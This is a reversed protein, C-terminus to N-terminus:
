MLLRGLVHRVRRTLVPGDDEVDVLTITSQQSMTSDQSMSRVLQRQIIAPNTERMMRTAAIVFLLPGIGVLFTPLFYPYDILFKVHGFLAPLNEAPRAFHGGIIPALAGGVQWSMSAIPFARAANTPDTIEALMIKSQINFGPAVLSLLMRLSLLQAFTTSLGFIASAICSLVVALLLIPKRGYKDALLTWPMVTLLFAFSTSSELLGSYRAVDPGHAIGLREVLENIYPFPAGFLLPHSARWQM